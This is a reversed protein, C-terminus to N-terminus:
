NLTKVPEYISVPLNVGQQFAGAQRKSYHCIKEGDLYFTSREDFRLYSVDAWHKNDKMANLSRGTCESYGNGGVRPLSYTHGQRKTLESVTQNNLLCCLTRPMPCRYAHKQKGM